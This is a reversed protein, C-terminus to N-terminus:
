SHALQWAHGGAIPRRHWYAFDASPFESISVVALWQAMPRKHLAVAQLKSEPQGSHPDVREDFLESVRANSAFRASWHIPVFVEGPRQGADSKVPLLLEGNSSEVALLDGDRCQLAAATDPHVAVFPAPAHQLLRP